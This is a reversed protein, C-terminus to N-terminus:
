LESEVVQHLQGALAPISEAVIQWITVEELGFCAHALGDGLGAIRRWPVQPHRERAALPIQKAEEGLGELNRLVADVKMEDALLRERTLGQSYRLIKSCSLVDRMGAISKWPTETERDRLQSSLNKVAEGIVILNRIVGDQVLTSALATRGETTYHAIRELAEAISTLYLLDKSV